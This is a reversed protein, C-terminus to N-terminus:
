KLNSEMKDLCEGWGKLCDEYMEAPMPAQTMHMHTKGDQEKLEVTILLERPWKGPFGEPAETINGQKDAFSDTVVLKKNEIIEKYTGISFQEEGTKKNKMSAHCTGGVRLDIKCYPCTYEHPGWWKKFSEPETWAKWITSVPLDFIRNISVTKYEKRKEDTTKM